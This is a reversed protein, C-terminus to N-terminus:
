LLWLAIGAHLKGVRSYLLVLECEDGWRATYDTQFGILVANVMVLATIAKETHGLCVDLLAQM